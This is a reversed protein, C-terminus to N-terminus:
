YDRYRGSKRVAEAQERALNREGADDPRPPRMAGTAIAKEEAARRERAFNREGADDPRPPRTAGTGTAKAEAARRARRSDSEGSADASPPRSPAAVKKGTGAGGDRSTVRSDESAPAGKRREAKRVAGSSEIEAAGGQPKRQASAAASTEDLTQPKRVPGSSTQALAPAVYGIVALAPLLRAITPPM